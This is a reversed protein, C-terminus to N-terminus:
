MNETFINRFFSADPALISLSVPIDEMKWRFFRCFVEGFISSCGPFLCVCVFIVSELKCWKKRGNEHGFIILVVMIFCIEQVYRILM